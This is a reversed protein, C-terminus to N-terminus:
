SIYPLYKYLTPIFARVYRVGCVARGARLRVLMRPCLSVGGKIHVYRYSVYMVGLGCVDFSVCRCVIVVLMDVSGRWLFARPRTWM